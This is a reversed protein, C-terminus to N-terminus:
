VCSIKPDGETSVVAYNVCGTCDCHDSSGGCWGSDSCCTYGPHNPNCQYPNGYGDLFSAGCRAGPHYQPM